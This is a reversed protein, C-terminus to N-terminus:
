VGIGIRKLEIVVIEGPCWFRFPALGGLGSSVNIARKGEYYMGGWQKYLLEAPSWGFIKMQAAHTHGSLTLQACSHPLIDTDWSTPDHQLMLIFPNSGKIGRLTKYIDGTSPCKKSGGKYEMGAVFISDKGRRVTRNENLLLTWGMQRQLAETKKLLRNRTAEDEDTYCAYDHNGLISFVGDPAHLKSLTAKKAEIEEPRLNQLDGTFAIMDPRLANISDIAASLIKSRWGQYTGVHADSFQVIRYGDFGEPIDHSAFTVHRVQLEGFGWTYGYVTTAAVAAGIFAGVANGWNTKTKHYVCHGWGMLSCITFAFKPLIWVGILLMFWETAKMDAPAFGKGLSLSVAFIVVAASQAIWVARWAKRRAASQIRGILRGAIYWDAFVTLLILPIVIRAIM